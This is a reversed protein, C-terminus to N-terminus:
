SGYIWTAKRLIELCVGPSYRLCDVVLKESTRELKGFAIM